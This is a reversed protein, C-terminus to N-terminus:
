ERFLFPNSGLVAHCLQTWGVDRNGNLESSCEEVFAVATEMEDSTAPRGLALLSLRSFRAREDTPEDNKLREALSEAQQKVFPANLLYLAQTAVTTNPRAGTIENPHPCDFVSLIELDGQPRERRLPLYIARRTKINDPIKGGWTAPNVKGGAGQINGTLELGLCPGGRAPNLEGSAALMADRISEASLRRRPMRWMLRNDPDIEAAKAHHISAM